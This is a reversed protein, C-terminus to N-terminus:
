FNNVLDDCRRAPPVDFSYFMTVILDRHFPRSRSEHSYFMSSGQPRRALERTFCNSSNFLNPFSTSLSAAQSLISRSLFYRTRVRRLAVDSSAHLYQLENFNMSTRFIAFFIPLSFKCLFNADNILTWNAVVRALQLYKKYHPLPAVLSMLTLAIALRAVRREFVYLSCRSSM